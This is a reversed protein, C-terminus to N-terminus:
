FRLTAAPQVARSEAHDAARRCHRHLSRANEKGVTITSM